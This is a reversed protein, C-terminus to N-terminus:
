IADVIYLYLIYWLRATVKDDYVYICRMCNIIVYLSSLFSIACVKQVSCLYIYSLNTARNRHILAARYLDIPSSHDFRMFGVSQSRVSVLRGCCKLAPLALCM